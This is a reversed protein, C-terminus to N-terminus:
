SGVRDEVFSALEGVNKLNGIEDMKFKISFAKEIMVMLQVNGLSDWQEVDHASLEESFTGEFEDFVERIMTELDALIENKNM